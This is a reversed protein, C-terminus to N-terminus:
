GRAARIGYLITLEGAHRREFQYGALARTFAADAAAGHLEIAINRTEALWAPSHRFVEIEAGEIDVKLLDVPGSAGARSLIDPLALGEVDGSSWPEVELSWSGDRRSEPIIRLRQRDSWVAANLVTVRDQFPSLNERCLRCNEDDPEVAILRAAPYCHLLYYASLGINAGCDVILKVDRLSSVPAYERRVFMQSLVNRDSGIRRVVVPHPYGIPKVRVREMAHPRVIHVIPKRTSAECFFLTAAAVFGLSPIQRASSRLLQWFSALRGAILAVGRWAPNV